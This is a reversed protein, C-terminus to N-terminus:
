RWQVHGPVWSTLAERGSRSRGVLCAERSQSPVALLATTVGM